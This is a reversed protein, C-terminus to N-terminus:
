NELYSKLKQGMIEVLNELPKKVMVSLMPNVQADIEFSFLTENMGLSELNSSLQFPFPSKGEADMVILTNEQRNTIRLEITALNNIEFSCSDTDSKWDTIQEPMLNQFNNFDNLFEYIRDASNKIIIPDNKIQM